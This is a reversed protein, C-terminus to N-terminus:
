DTGLHRSLEHALAELDAAFQEATGEPVKARLMRWQNDGEWTEVYGFGEEGDWGVLVRNAESAFVSRVSGYVDWETDGVVEELGAEALPVALREKIVRYEHM